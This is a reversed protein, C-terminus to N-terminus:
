DLLLLSIINYPTDQIPSRKQLDLYLKKQQQQHGKIPLYGGFMSESDVMLINNNNNNNNNNDRRIKFEVQGTQYFTLILKDINSHYIIDDICIRTNDDSEQKFVVFLNLTKLHLPICDGKFAQPINTDHDVHFYLYTTTEPLSLKMDGQVSSGFVLKTLAPPLPSPIIPEQDYSYTLKLKQLNSPLVILEPDNPTKWVLSKVSDPIDGKRVPQSYSELILYEVGQPIVGKLSQNTRGLCLRLRKISPPISLQPDIDDRISQLTLSWLKPFHKSLDIHKINNHPVKLVELNCCEKLLTVSVEEYSSLHTLLTVPFLDSLPVRGYAPDLVLQCLGLHLRTLRSCQSYMNPALTHTHFDDFGDFRLSELTSPLAGPLLQNLTINLHKLKAPLDGQKIPQGYYDLLTLSEINPPLIDVGLTESVLADEPIVLHTTSRPVDGFKNYHTLICHTIDNDNHNQNVIVKSDGVVLINSTSRKFLNVFSTLHFRHIIANMTPTFAKFGFPAKTSAILPTGLCQLKFQLTKSDRGIRYFRKCTLLFCILDVGDDISVIINFINLNSLDIITETTTTTTM